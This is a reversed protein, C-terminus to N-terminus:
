FSFGINFNWRSDRTTHGKSYRYGVEASLNGRRAQLAAKVFYQGKDATTFGVVDYANGYTIRQQSDRDGLNWSYGAEVTSGMQWGDILGFNSRVELGLPLTWMNQNDVDFRMGLSNKYEKTKIHTYRLGAFPVLETKGSLRCSNEVRFGANYINVKPTATVDVAGVTSMTVDNKSHTIGGDYQVSFKGIDQRNYVSLGYYDVDSEVTSVKQSSFTSGDAYTLAVGGFGHRGSWLDAGVTIGNYQIESNQKLFEGTEMGDIKQKSHIYSAWVEKSYVNQSDERHLEMNGKNALPVTAIEYSSKGAATKQVIAPGGIKAIPRVMVGVNLCINENTLNNIVCTGTQVNALQAMNTMTNITNNLVETDTQSASIEEIWAKAQSGAPFKSVLNDIDTIQTSPTPEPEPEPEPDTQVYDDVMTLILNNGSLSIQGAGDLVYANNNSINGSKSDAAILTIVQGSTLSVGSAATVDILTNDYTVSATSLMLNDNALIDSPLVFSMKQFYQVDSAKANIKTEINLTNGSSTGMQGAKGGYLKLGAGFTGGKINVVTNKADKQNNTDQGGYIVMDNGFTGGSVTVINSDAGDSNRSGFIWIGDGFSVNGSITVENEKGIGSGQSGYIHASTGFNGGSIIIKNGKATGSSSSNYSGYIEISNGFTGGSITVINGETSAGDGGYIKRSNGFTGGSITVTNDKAFKGHYSSDGNGYIIGEGQFNGGSIVVGNGEFSVTNGFGGTCAGASVVSGIKFDGGSITLVNNKVEGNNGSLFGAFFYDVNNFTIVTEHCTETGSLTLNGNSTIADSVNFFSSPTNGKWVIAGGNDYGYWYNYALAKHVPMHHLMNAGIVALAILVYKTKFM